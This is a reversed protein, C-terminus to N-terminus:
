FSTPKLYYRSKILGIFDSAKDYDCKMTSRDILIWSHFNDTVVIWENIWTLSSIPFDVDFYNCVESLPGFGKKPRFSNTRRNQCQETPTWRNGYRLKVLFPITAMQSFFTQKHTFFCSISFSGFVRLSILSAFANMIKFHENASNSNTIQELCNAAM